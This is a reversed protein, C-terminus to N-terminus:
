ESRAENKGDTFLALAVDDASTQDWTWDDSERQFITDSISEETFLEVTVRVPPAPSCSRISSCDPEASSSETETFAYDAEVAAATAPGMTILNTPDHRMQAEYSYGGTLLALVFDGTGFDGDGDWDGEAWTANGPVGDEYKGVQLVLVLDRTNFVGDLNADGYTTGLIDLVLVDRDATTVKEDGDLDFRPDPDPSRLQAALADIDAANVIGNGDFDGPVGGAFRAVGPNPAAAVWYAADNGWAQATRRQLSFGDGDAAEPWPSRDDYLVEDEQWRPTDAPAELDPRQLEIRESDNDLQGDYGGVLPVASNLGYHTRFAETRNANAPNLPDFSVVLLAQGAPIVTTAAFDFDVGGRLRWNELRQDEATPNYVEIFELDDATLTPDIALAFPSPESPNYNLESIVLPGVRPLGNRDGLTVELMPALRGQGNPVRGWSEGVRAAGFHVNDVFQAVGSQENPIVLWVDDGLASLAFDNPGPNPPNPNFHTEDFVISRGPALRTNAPIRYKLPRNGSDSLYWGSLDITQDSVNLLEIADLPADEDPNTVVENIVIGIPGADAAGPTGGFITSGRWQYYKGYQDAETKPDILVLTAGFGDAREPWPDNDEYGFSILPQDLLDRLELREGGNALSGEAFQGLVRAQDGYRLRFAEVNKVVVAYEGPELTEAPFAFQVGETLRLGTLNLPLTGHNFVELFEFDDSELDPLVALEVDTPDSPNYNIESIAITPPAILYFADVIPSWEYALRIRARLFTNDNIEIPSNQYKVAAPNVAGGSLRPDSGDITYYLGDPGTPDGIIKRGILQYGILFDTSSASDNIAHVALVNRFPAPQLLAKAEPGLEFREYATTAEHSATALSNYTPSDPANVSLFPVGNLYAVFGDDYRVDFFLHDYEDAASGDNDRDEIEIRSFNRFYLNTTGAPVTTRLLSEYGTETEYGFDDGGLKWGTFDSFSPQTWTNGVRNHFALDPIAYRVFGTDSLTTDEIRQEVAGDITVVTGPLVLGSAPRFEPIETEPWWGVSRFQDLVRSIRTRTWNISTQVSRDWDAKTFPTSRKADGWRASEAIIAESIENARGQLMSRVNDAGLLGDDAFVEHVRDVFRQLYDSNTEALQEHMWHPNFYTFQTGNNVFPTVMNHDGNNCGTTDLSHESDHEFFKWGDPNERNYLGFYNNLAPRTCKSGPGDSDSTYYTIIMYDMVNDVDLLREYAPNRTGDPNMGQVRYYDAMNEDGLGGPKVFEQWLRQYADLNGDIAANNRPDNHVVDYDAEEGGFYIEGYDAGIREDTQFLGWYQGNIYLHYYEGRKAPHGMEGQLDRSFIDRLFNNQGDGQFAWSYNQTTRLDIKDFESAGEEGFLPYRLRSDGYEDRFFFRFAHKPNATSVSFGGRIRVGANAQFGEQAGSPDILEISTPREWAIGSASANSYIGRSGFLDDTNMVMSISPISTLAGELRPGWVPSNVVDPDMGYDKMNSGWNSPFGAPTEGNPSQRVIDDTFLYSATATRSSEVDTLFAKARVVTTRSISLPNSYLRATPNDASPETGDLTYYISVGPTRHRMQLQFPADYFGRQQSFEVAGLFIEAGNSNPRGPTPATFYVRDATLVSPPIEPPQLDPLIELLQWDGDTVGATISQYLLEVEAGGTSEFYVLELTHEGASLPIANSSQLQPPHLANDLIVNAGDIRLRSGDDSHVAFRFEGASDEPIVLTATVQLAFHDDDELYIDYPFAEDLLFLGRDGGGAADYFNVAGFRYSVDQAVGPDGEPLNLLLQADALPDIGTGDNGGIQGTVKGPFSSSANVQRVSYGASDVGILRNVTPVTRPNLTGNALGVISDSPLAMDWVALEDILGAFHSNTFRGLTFPLLDDTWLEGAEVESRLEGNLYLEVDRGDYRVAFHFWTASSVGASVREEGGYEVLWSTGLPASNRFAFRTADGQGVEFVGGNTGEFFSPGKVWGAVTRPTSGPFGLESATAGTTVLDDVGDFSLATRGATRGTVWSGTPSMNVLTATRGNGSLDAAQTGSGEEFDWFAVLGEVPDNAENGSGSGRLGFSVDDYQPVYPQGGLEYEWRVTSGDPRVLALYEGDAALSFDTHLPSGPDDRDKGSAFIVLYDGAELYTRPFRWGTLDDPDDTLYWDELNIDILGPNHLEIWDSSEGDEDDLSNRNAAMFETIVPEVLGNTGGPTPVELVGVEEALLGRGKLQADIYFELDDARWNLGHIALVNQGPRLFERFRTLDLESGIVGLENPATSNYAPLTPANRRAIEHGNLFLVYGDDFDLQLSLTQLDEPQGVQFPYRLYASGNKAHMVSELDLAIKLKESGQEFGVPGAGRLWGSDDFPESGGTWTGGLLDNTPVLARVDDGTIFEFQGSPRYSGYAQDEGLAPYDAFQSAVTTGNPRVLALFGGTDDLTFNTHLTDAKRDKGSAFVVLSEGPALSRQPLQWATLNAADNTLYYGGLAAPSDGRNQIELWDSFQGDEDALSARNLAVFESLVPNAALLQRSELPECGHLSVSRRRCRRRPSSSVLSWKRGPMRFM